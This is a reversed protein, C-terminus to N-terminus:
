VGKLLMECAHQSHMLVMTVRGADDYSTFATMATCLSGIAKTKLTRADRLLKM